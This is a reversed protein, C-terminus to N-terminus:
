GSKPHTLTLKDGDPLKKGDLYVEHHRLGDIKLTATVYRENDISFNLLHIADRNSGLM